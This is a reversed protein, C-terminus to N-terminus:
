EDEIVVGDMMVSGTIRCKKGITCNAGIVSKKVNSREGLTTGDGVTSDGGVAAPKIANLQPSNPLSKVQSQKITAAQRANQKMIYRNAELYASISNARIFTSDEPILKMAVTELPQGHSWSRRAFDRIVKNWSRDKVQIDGSDMISLVKNNCFFIAARLISSSVVANSYRWLMSMRLNLSKNDTVLEKDYIDLLKVEKFKLPTHVIYDSILSKKEINELKNEYYLGTILVDQDKNRHMDILVTPSIDTLFDCPLIVFDKKIKSGLSRVIDSTSKSDSEVIEIPLPGHDKKYV